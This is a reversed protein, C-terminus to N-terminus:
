LNPCNNLIDEVIKRTNDSLIMKYKNDKYWKNATSGPVVYQFSSWDCLMECISEMPMDLPIIHAADEILCWYQWHHPNRRQHTWWARNFDYEDKDNQNEPYFYKRYAKFENTLYKSSDHSSIHEVLIPYSITDKYKSNLLYDRLIEDFARYVGERHKEIYRSYEEDRTM